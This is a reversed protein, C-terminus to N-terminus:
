RWQTSLNVASLDIAVIAPNDKVAEALRERVYPAAIADLEGGLAVLVGDQTLHLDVAYDPQNENAM